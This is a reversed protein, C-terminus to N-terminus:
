KSKLTNKETSKAIKIGFYELRSKGNSPMKSKFKSDILKQEVKTIVVIKNKKALYSKLNKITKTPNKLLEEKIMSLPVIHEAHLGDLTNFKTYHKFANVSFPYFDKCRNNRYLPEGKSTFETYSRLLKDFPNGKAFALRLEVPMQLINYIIKAIADQHSKKM